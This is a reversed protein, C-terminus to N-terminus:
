LFLVIALASVLMIAAMKIFAKKISKRKENSLQLSLEYEVLQNSLETYDTQMSKYMVTNDLIYGFLNEGKIKQGTDAIWNDDFKFVMDSGPDNEQIKFGESNLHKAFDGWLKDFVYRYEKSKKNAIGGRFWTADWYKKPPTVIFLQNPNIYKKINQIEWKLGESRGEFIVVARCAKFLQIIADKWKDDFSQIKLSGGTPLYDNPDSLSIIPFTTQSFRRCINEDFTYGSLPYKDIEFSRLFIIPSQKTNLSSITRNAESKIRNYRNFYHYPYFSFVIGFVTTILSTIIDASLDIFWYTDHILIFLIFFSVFCLLSCLIGYIKYNIESSTKRIRRNELNPFLCKCLISILFIELITIFLASSIFLLSNEEDILNGMWGVVKTKILIDVILFIIVLYFKYLPNYIGKKELPNIIRLSEYIRPNGGLLLVVVVLGWLPFTILYIYLIIDEM